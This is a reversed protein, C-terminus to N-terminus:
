SQSFILVQELIFVEIIPPNELSKFYKVIDMYNHIFYTGTGNNTEPKPNGSYEYWNLYSKNSNTERLNLIYSIFHNALKTGKDCIIFELSNKSNLNAFLIESNIQDKNGHQHANLIAEYLATFINYGFGKEEANIAFPEVFERIKLGYNTKPLNIKRKKFNHPIHISSINNEELNIERNLISKLPESSPSFIDSKKDIKM